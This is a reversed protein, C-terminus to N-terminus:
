LFFGLSVKIGFRSRDGFETMSMDFYISPELTVNRNLFLCYGVEPTIILDNYAKWEHVFKAGASLFLGNQEIYYRGSAGISFAHTDSNHFDFGLQGLVMWDRAVMYGAKADIGLHFKTTESYSMDFGSVSAGVYKKGKEFQASASTIGVLAFMLILATKKM